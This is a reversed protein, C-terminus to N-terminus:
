KKFHEIFDHRVGWLGTIALVFFCAFMIMTIRPDFWLALGFGTTLGITSGVSFHKMFRPIMEAM